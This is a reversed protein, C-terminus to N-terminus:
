NVDFVSDVSADVLSASEHVVHEVVLVKASEVIAVVVSSAGSASSEVVEDGSHVVTSGSSVSSLPFSSFSSPAPSSFLFALSFPSRFSFSVAPVPVSVPSFAPIISFFLAAVCGRAIEVAASSASIGPSFDDPLEVSASTIM